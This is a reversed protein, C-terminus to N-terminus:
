RVIRAGKVYRHCAYCTLTLSVYRLAAADSDRQRAAEILDQTATLFAASYRAYEPTKLVAWAPAKTAQALAESERQLLPYNSTMVAELIQESHALKERMVLGTAPTQGPVATGSMVVVGLVALSRIFMRMTPAVRPLHPSLSPALRIRTM